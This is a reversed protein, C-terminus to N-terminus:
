LKKLWETLFDDDDFIVSPKKAKPKVNMFGLFSNWNDMDKEVDKLADELVKHADKTLTFEDEVLGLAHAYKIAVEILEERAEAINKERRAQETAKREAEAREKEIEAAAENIEATFRAMLEEPTVKGSKLADKISMDM